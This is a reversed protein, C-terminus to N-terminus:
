STRIAFDLNLVQIGFEDELVLAPDLLDVIDGTSPIQIRRTFGTGDVSVDIVAGRLLRTEAYGAEDTLMEVSGRFIGFHVNNSTVSSPQFVNLITIGRGPMPNGMLDSIRIYCAVSASKAISATKAGPFAASQESVQPGTSSRYETVYFYDNGSNQDTYLYEAVNSHLVSDADLGLVAGSLGLYPAADSSVIEISAGSGTAVTTLVVADDVATATLLGTSNSIEIAAAGAAVPDISTFTVDIETSGNIRFSLTKGHLQFPGAASAIIAHQATAATTAELAGSTNKRRYWRLRDYTEIVNAIDSVLFSQQLPLNTVRM